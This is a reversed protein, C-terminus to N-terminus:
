HGSVHVARGGDLLELDQAPLQVHRHVAVVGAAWRVDRVAGELLGHGTPPVDHDDVGGAPEGDVLGM